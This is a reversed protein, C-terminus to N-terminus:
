GCCLRERKGRCALRVSLLTPQITVGWEQTAGLRSMVAFHLLDRAPIDPYTAAFGAADMVDEPRIMEIRGRMVLEFNRLVVYGPDPWLKLRLYRHLLEQLVEADTVFAEPQSGILRM